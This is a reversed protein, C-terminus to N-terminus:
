ASCFKNQSTSTKSAPDLGAFDLYAQLSRATGLGFQTSQLAPKGDLGLLRVVRAQSAKQRDSYGTIDEWFKPKGARTYFHMCYNRLPAFFDYGSTWARASYLIEEGNFLFDLSPDFPVEKLISAPAFFFGGALFPIPKPDGGAPVADMTVAEFTVLNDATFKSKCLVPVSRVDPANSATDHPYFSMVPKSSPCAKIDDLVAVDWGKTFTTHSDIQCFYTENKHLSACVYRAYTPGKADKYSMTAVRVNQRWPLDPDVCEEAQEGPKNQQCVGAFIRHPFSANAYMSRLTQSCDDDRYSAISVFITKQAEASSHEQIHQFKFATHRALLYCATLIAIGWVIFRGTGMFARNKIAREM